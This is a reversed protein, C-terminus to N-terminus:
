ESKLESLYKTFATYWARSPCSIIFVVRHAILDLVPLRRKCVTPCSAPISFHAPRSLSLSWPSFTHSIPPSDLCFCFHQVWPLSPALEGTIVVGMPGLPWKFFPPEQPYSSQPKTDTLRENQKFCSTLESDLSVPQQSSAPCFGVTQSSSITFRNPM